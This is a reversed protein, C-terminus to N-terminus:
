KRDQNVRIGKSFKGAILSRDGSFNSYNISRPEHVAKYKVDRNIRTSPDNSDLRYGTVEGRYNNELTDNTMTRSESPQINTYSGNSTARRIVPLRKTM